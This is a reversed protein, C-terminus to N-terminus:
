DLAGDTAVRGILAEPTKAKAALGEEGDM